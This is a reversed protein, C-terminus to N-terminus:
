YLDAVYSAIQEVTPRWGDRWRQERGEIFQIVCNICVGWDYYSQTSRSGKM